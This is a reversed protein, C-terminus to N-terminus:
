SSNVRELIELNDHLHGHTEKHCNSCLLVCKELEKEVLEPSLRVLDSFGRDKEEPNIHHFELAGLYKNYGCIQCCGGKLDVLRQKRKSHRNRNTKYECHKCTKSVKEKGNRIRNVLFNDETYPIFSECRSYLKNLVGDTEKWKDSHSLEQGKREGFPNCNYCYKRPPGFHHIKGDIETGNFFEKNCKKCFYSMKLREIDAKYPHCKLCRNRTTLQVRKGDVKTSIKFEENCTKCIKTLCKRKM